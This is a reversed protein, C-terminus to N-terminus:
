CHCQLSVSGSHNVDLQNFNANAEALHKSQLSDAYKDLVAQVQPNDDKFKLNLQLVVAFYRSEVCM